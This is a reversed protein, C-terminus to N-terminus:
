LIEALGQINEKTGAIRVGFKNAPKTGPKYDFKAFVADMQCSIEAGEPIIGVYYDTDTEASFQGEVEFDETTKMGIFSTSFAFKYGAKTGANRVSKIKVSEKLKSTIKDTIKM